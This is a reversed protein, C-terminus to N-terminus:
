EMPPDTGYTSSLGTDAFPPFTVQRRSGPSFVVFLTALQEFLVFHSRRTSLRRPPPRPCSSTIATAQMSRPHTFLFVCLENQNSVTADLSECEMPCPSYLRHARLRVHPGPDFPCTVLAEFMRPMFWSPSRSKSVTLLLSGM